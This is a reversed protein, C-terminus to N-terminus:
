KHGQFSLAAPNPQAQLLLVHRSSDLHATPTVRIRAFPEGSEQQIDNIVGVPYGRPYRGGLGSSVLVDGVKLDVTTAVHQLYLHGLIGDGIAIARVGNRLNEIPIAHSADTILLVRSSLLGLEVVKGMVGFADVLAQGVEVGHSSGKDIVIQQSFSKSDVRLIEATMRSEDQSLSANLLTKLRANEAEVAALKQLRGEQLLQTEKLTLNEQRLQKQDGMYRWLTDGCRNPLDVVWQLPYVAATLLGRFGDVRHYHHDLVM